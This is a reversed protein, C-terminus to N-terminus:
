LCRSKRHAPTTSLLVLSVHDLIHNIATSGTRTLPIGSELFDRIWKLCLVVRTKKSIFDKLKLLLVEVHVTELQDAVMGTRELLKILTDERNNALVLGYAEAYNCDSLSAKVKDDVNSEIAAASENHDTMYLKVRSPEFDTVTNTRGHSRQSERLSKEEMHSVRSEVKSVRTELLGLRELIRDESEVVKELVKKFQSALWSVSPEEPREEEAKVSNSSPM